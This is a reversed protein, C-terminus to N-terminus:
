LVSMPPIAHTRHIVLEVNMGHCSIIKGHCVGMGAIIALIFAPEQTSLNCNYMFTYPPFYLIHTCSSRPIHLVSGPSYAYPETIIQKKTHTTIKKACKHSRVVSRRGDSYDFSQGLALSTIRSAVLLLLHYCVM